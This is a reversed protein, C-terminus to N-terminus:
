QGRARRALQVMERRVDEGSEVPASFALRVLRESARITFGEGDVGALQTPADAAVNVGALRCYERMTDAHDQNMHEAMSAEDTAAFPNARQLKAPDVWHIRGFGGIYHAWEVKLAWFSFDPFDVYM